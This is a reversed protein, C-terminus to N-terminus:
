VYGAAPKGYEYRGTDALRVFCGEIRIREPATATPELVVKDILAYIGVLTVLRQGFPPLAFPALLPPLVLLVIWYWRM